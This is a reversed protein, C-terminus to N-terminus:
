RLPVTISLINDSEYELIDHPRLLKNQTLAAILGHLDFDANGATGQAIMQCELRPTTDEDGSRAPWESQILRDM